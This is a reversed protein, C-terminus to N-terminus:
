KGSGETAAADEIKQLYDRMESTMTDWQVVGEKPWDPTGAMGAVVQLIFWCQYMLERPSYALGFEKEVHTHALCPLTTQEEGEAQPPEDLRGQAQDAVPGNLPENMLGTDEQREGAPATEGVTRRSASKPGTVTQTKATKTRRNKRPSDEAPQDAQKKAPYVYKEKAQTIGLGTLADETQASEYLRIADNVSTDALDHERKWKAWTGHGEAKCKDRAFALACGARFLHVASKHSQLIAAQETQVSNALEGKAFLALRDLEWSSDPLSEDLRVAENGVVTYGFQHLAEESIRASTQM